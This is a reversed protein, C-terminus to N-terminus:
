FPGKFKREHSYFEEDTLDCPKLDLMEEATRVLTEANPYFTNELHRPTPCHKPAFGVRRTVVSTHEAVTAAIEAAWGCTPWDCDTVLLHRTRAASDIICESWDLNPVDVVQVCLGFHKRELIDAAQLAEVTMWSVSAITLEAPGYLDGHVLSAVPVIPDAPWRVDGEAWYLWRHEMIITPKDGRIAAVMARAVDRATSPAWVRVGPVHAFVGHMSKSHQSGQGWGRGVVVRITLPCPRELGAAVNWLQNLGLLAFDARIHVLVPRMGALAAGIGVKALLAGSNQL